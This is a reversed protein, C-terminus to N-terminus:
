NEKNFEVKVETDSNGTEKNDTKKALLESLKVGTLTEVVEPVTAMIDTIYGSVKAAGKGQGQGSDVIVIKETKSLPEAVARAIEPLKEIIMQTIAADNYQKFAEAKKLMAEAKKKIGYKDADAQKKITAELM